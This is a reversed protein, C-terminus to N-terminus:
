QSHQPVPTVECLDNLNNMAYEVSAPREVIGLIAEAIDCLAGAKSYDENINQAIM